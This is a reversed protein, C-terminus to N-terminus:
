LAWGRSVLHAKCKNCFGTEEATPNKGKADRMFCAKVPCHPLGQTHGLEHIAVKFFQSWHDTKSVRFGSAVCVNGPCLGLGMIGYDKVSGKTQSIDKNTLAIILHGAQARKRLFRIITDARYRNRDKYYAASPLDIPKRVVVRPYIKLLELHIFKLQESSVDSFPQIDITISQKNLTSKDSDGCAFCLLSIVILFRSM